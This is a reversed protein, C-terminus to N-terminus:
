ITQIGQNFKNVSQTVTGFWNISRGSSKIDTDWVYEEITQGYYGGYNDYRIGYLPIHFGEKDKDKSLKHCHYHM